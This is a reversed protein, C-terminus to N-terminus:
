CPMHRPSGVFSPDYKRKSPFASRRQHLTLADSESLTCNVSCAHDVTIHKCYQLVLGSPRLCAYLFCTVAGLLEMVSPHMLEHM